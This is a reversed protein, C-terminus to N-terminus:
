AAAAPGEALTFLEVPVAVDRLRHSGVPVLRRGAHRAVADSVLVPHGLPATLSEIRAARNVAAGIVTFDLRDTAGINGYVVDGLHLAIGFRVPRVGAVEREANWAAMRTLADRAAALAAECAAAEGGASTPFVALMADGVFKLIEGGHTRVAAAMREFWENLLAVVEGGDATESLATFGRLDCLWVVSARQQYHGRTIQGGLVREGAEGGVYTALVTRAVDHTTHAALVIGLASALARIRAVDVGGFGAPTRSAVSFWARNRSPMPLAVYDTLGQEALEHLLPFDLLADPGELRRRIEVGQEMVLRVPSDRYAPSVLSEHPHELEEVEDTWRRWVWGRGVVLPHLMGVTISMRELPLGRAVLHRCLDGVLRAPPAVLVSPDLLPAVDGGFETPVRTVDGRPPDPEDPAAPM